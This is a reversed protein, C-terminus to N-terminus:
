KENKNKIEKIKKIKLYLGPSHKKLFIGLLGIRRDIDCLIQEKIHYPERFNIKPVEFNCNLLKCTRQCKYILARQNKANKSVWIQKPKSLFNGIAAMNWCLLIEGQPNILFNNQGSMCHGSIKENPNIFYKKFKQLQEVSNYIIKRDKKKIKILEDIVNNLKNSAEGKPWFTNEKFWEKQYGVGFTQELAQFVIGDALKKDQVFKVIDLIENCNYGTLITAINISCRRKLNKLQQLADITRKYTGEVGRMYDHTQPTSGDLSISLNLTELGSLIKIIEPTLLTANTCVVTQIENKHCFRIIDILDKRLFPEGGSIDLTYPGLWQKLDIIIDIWEKYSLEKKKTLCWIKCNKCRLNCRETLNIQINTPKRM